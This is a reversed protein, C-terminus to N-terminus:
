QGYRAAAQTSYNMAAASAKNPDVGLAILKAKLIESANPGKVTVRRMGVGDPAIDIQEQLKDNGANAGAAYNKAMESRRLDPITGVDADGGAINSYLSGGLKMNSPRSGLGILHGTQKLEEERLKTAEEIKALTMSMQNAKDVGKMYEDQGAERRNQTNRLMMYALGDLTPIQSAFVHELPDSTFVQASPLSPKSNAM